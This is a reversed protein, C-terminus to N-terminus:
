NNKAGQLIWKKLIEQEVKTLLNGKKPMTKNQKRFTPLNAFPETTSHEDTLQPDPTKPSTLQSKTNQTPHKKKLKTTQDTNVRAHTHTHAHTHKKFECKPKQAKLVTNKSLTANKAPKM